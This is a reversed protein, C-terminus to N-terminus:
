MEVGPTVVQIGPVCFLKKLIQPSVVQDGYGLLDFCWETVAKDYTLTTNLELPFISLLYSESITSAPHPSVSFSEFLM